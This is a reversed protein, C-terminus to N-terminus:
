LSRSSFWSKIKGLQLGLQRLLPAASQQWYYQSDGQKFSLALAKFCLPIILAIILALSAVTNTNNAQAWYGNGKAWGQQWFWKLTQKEPSVYHHIILSPNFGLTYGKQIAAHQVFDEEGYGTKEGKMGVDTPFGKVDALLSRRYACNGGSFRTREIRVTEEYPMWTKNTAFRDLFWYAKGDKYWPTYVGGFADFADSNITKQLHYVWDDAPYADDDIYAVWSGKAESLGKNRAHSLGQEPERFYKIIQPHKAVWKKALEKTRDASNNDIILVEYDNSAYVQPALKLLLNELFAHRNYTCIVISLRIKM